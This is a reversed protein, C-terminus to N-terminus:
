AGEDATEGSLAHVAAVLEQWMGQDELRFPYYLAIRDLVGHYRRVLAEPLDQWPAEVAYVHLMEDGILGPMEEWRKRAALRSLREGVEEWGHVALVVRYSPTSAYFAIQQRVMERVADMEAPTRGTIAFVTSALQIDKRARGAARLAENLTPLFVEQMYRVSHFPHVHFGDALEGALRILGPNVGAVYVPIHPHDIPGPDFFDTMLTHKYFRGRFNLRTRNQWADWIARLAQIYERLKAVPAEWPVGFRREIHAKVQTGLGLIFRGRSLKQLDWAIHATVLPSRPFAIAVATGLHLRRTHEAALTLPLFPNHKTESTWLADFGVVEAARALAPMQDMDPVLLTVDVHM